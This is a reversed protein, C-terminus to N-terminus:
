RNLLRDVTSRVMKWLVIALALLGGLLLLNRISLQISYVDNITANQVTSSMYLTNDVTPDDIFLTVEELSAGEESPVEETTVEETTAEEEAVRMHENLVRLEDLIAENTTDRETPEEVITEPEEVIAETTEIIEDEM